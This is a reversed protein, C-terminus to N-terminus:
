PQLGDIQTRIREFTEALEGANTAVTLMVEGVAAVTAGMDATARGASRARTRRVRAVMANHRLRAQRRNAPLTLENRQEAETRKAARLDRAAGRYYRGDWRRALSGPVRWTPGTM